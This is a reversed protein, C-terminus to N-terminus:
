QHEEQADTMRLWLGGLSYLTIHAKPWFLEKSKRGEGKAWDAPPRSEPPQAVLDLHMISFNQLLRTLFFSMENYAFQQGLCIRPGANFPLFISPNVTLYKDLREDLFRDPDFEEADPGWYEKRRHMVFPGYIMATGAPAFFPRGTADPNRLLTDCTTYRMNFPVPPYLRMTENLVARLYRMNRFDESTPRRSTGVTSIIEERLRRFVEPYMCLFYVAITLTSSTTDRAAMLINLTEDHMLVPDSTHRAMYDIFTEYDETISADPAKEDLQTEKKRLAEQVIPDVFSDLVKMHETCKDKFIEFLPWLWTLRARRAVIEQASGLAHAFAEAQTKKGNGPSPAHVNWAFPLSDHLFGVSKGFLFQTSSDLTFKSVVDKVQFDVAHGLRFREKMKHIAQETHHEFMDFHGIKERSFFPRAMSRHFKWIAGDSNFVGNGLFSRMMERFVNGKEFKSFDTVLMMKILSPDSTIYRRDWLIDIAFTPGLENTKDGVGDSPYGHAFAQMVSQLVDVNGIRRGDWAPPLTAGLRTAARTVRRQEAVIALACCAPIILIAALVRVWTPIIIKLSREFSNSVYIVAVSFCAISFLGRLLFPVGPPLSVM